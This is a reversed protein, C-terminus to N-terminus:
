NKFSFATLSYLISLASVECSGTGAKPAPLALTIQV